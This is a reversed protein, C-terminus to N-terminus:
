TWRVTSVKAGAAVASPTATALTLATGSISAVTTWHTSGDALLVGVVDGAAMGTGSAVTLTTGAAAGSPVTTDVRGTIRWPASPGQVVTGLPAVGQTPKTTQYLPRRMQRRVIEVGTPMSAGNTFATMRVWRFPKVTGGAKVQIRAHTATRSTILINAFKRDAPNMYAAEGNVTTPAGWSADVFMGGATVNNGNADYLFVAARFWTEDSTIQFRRLSWVSPYAEGNEDAYNALALLVLRAVGATQREHKLVWGVAQISM